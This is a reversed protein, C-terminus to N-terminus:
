FRTINILIRHFIKCKLRYGCWVLLTFIIHTGGAPKQVSHMSIVNESKTKCYLPNIKWDSGITTVEMCTGYLYGTIEKSINRVLLQLQENYQKKKWVETHWLQSDSIIIGLYVKFVFHCKFFFFRVLSMVNCNIQIIIYHWDIKLCLKCESFMIYRICVFWNDEYM